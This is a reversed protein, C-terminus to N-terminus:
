IFFTNPEMGCLIRGYLELNKSPVNVAHINMAQIDRQIRQIPVSDYTSSAGSAMNLINVAELSLQAVRGVVVRCYARERISWPEDNVNKGDVMAALEHAHSEAEEIRMCAEAVQLHTIPAEAAKAYNTHALQRDALREFFVESAAKALGVMKGTNIASLTAVVPGRYIPSNMNRNPDFQQRMVDSLRQYRASPIFVDEAVTTISGTGRLGAVEWDDVIKLDSMPVVASIPEMDNGDPTPIMTSLMKWQSHWAGSNFGWEGSVVVGGDVPVGTGGPVFTGCIRADPDSFIEDQVEDPFHSIAWTMVWWAAVCFAASGDGRGLQMGVDVSTRTDCEYGGFHVPLQMRFIGARAMADVVEDALRGNRDGSLANARLIPVLETARQTMEARSPIGVVEV